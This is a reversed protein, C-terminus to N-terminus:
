QIVGKFSEQSRSILSDTVLGFFIDDEGENEPDNLVELIQQECDQLIGVVKKSVKKRNARLAYFSIFNQNESIQDAKFSSEVSFSLLNKLTSTSTRFLTNNHGVRGDKEVLLKKSTLFDLEEIGQKGFETSIEERTTGNGSLALLIILFKNKDNLYYELNLDIYENNSSAYAERYTEAIIPYNEDLYKLLDGKAGTGRLIKIIQDIAPMRVDCNEIRNLSSNSMNFRKAIQTGSLNSHDKKYARIRKSLDVCLKSTHTMADM